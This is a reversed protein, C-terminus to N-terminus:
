QENRGGLNQFKEQEESIWGNILSICKEILQKWEKEISADELDSINPEKEPFYIGYSYGTDYGKPKFIRNYLKGYSGESIIFPVYKKIKLATNQDIYLEKTIKQDHYENGEVLYLKFKFENGNKYLIIDGDESLGFVVQKMCFINNNFVRGLKASDNVYFHLGGSKTRIFRKYKNYIEKYKKVLKKNILYASEVTLKVSNEIDTEEMSVNIKTEQINEIDFTKLEEFYDRLGNLREINDSNIKVVLGTADLAVGKEFFNYNEKRDSVARNIDVSSLDTKKSLSEIYNESKVIASTLSKLEANGKIAQVYRQINQIYDSKEIKYKASVEISFVDNVLKKKVKKSGEVMKVLGSAIATIEDKELALNKIVTESQMKVGFKSVADRQSLILAIEEVKELPVGNGMVAEGVGVYEEATLVTSFLTTLFFVFFKVRM